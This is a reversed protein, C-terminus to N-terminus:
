LRRCPQRSPSQWRCNYFHDEAEDTQSNPNSTILNLHREKKNVIHSPKILIKLAQIINEIRENTLLELAGACYLRIAMSVFRPKCRHPAATALLSMAMEVTSLYTNVCM